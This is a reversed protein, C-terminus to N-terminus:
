ELRLKFKKMSVALLLLTMGLLVAAERGVQAFDAGQIMVKRMAAIYWRAPVAASLGQLLSPMSEIPFMLGSLIVTPLILGMGSVLMAAMRTRVLTSILLGLSLGLFVYLLSLGVLLWLSGRLPVHMVGSALALISAVNVASLAFYPVAKGLIIVAPRVPSALLLEMTGTERERVISVSSMMACIILLIMGMVGPVFNYASESQPNYLYRTAVRIDSGAAAGLAQTLVGQAYAASLQAQNPETGDAVLQLGVEGERQLRDAFRDRFVLVLSVEGRRFAREMEATSGLEGQWHFRPNDAFRQKVARTLEDRSADLSAVKIGSVDTSIAFGFLLVQVVPMALLILMTRGDRFIHMFEKRVFNLFLKM